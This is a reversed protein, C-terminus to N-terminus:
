CPFCLLFLLASEIDEDESADTVGSERLMKIGEAFRIRPAKGDPILFNAAHPYARQVEATARACRERLGRFIHLLLAEAQDVVEDWRNYIVM